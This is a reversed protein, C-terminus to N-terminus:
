GPLSQTGRGRDARDVPDRVREPPRDRGWRRPQRLDTGRGRQAGPRRAARDARLGGVGHGPGAGDAPGPAPAPAAHGTGPRGADPSDIFVVAATLKAAPLTAPIFESSM